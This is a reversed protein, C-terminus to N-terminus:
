YNTRIEVTTGGLNQRMSGFPYKDFDYDDATGRFVAIKTSNEYLAQARAVNNKVAGEDSSDAIFNKFYKDFMLITKESQISGSKKFTPLAQDYDFVYIMIWSYMPSSLITVNSNEAYKNGHIQQSVFTAAEMQFSAVNTTILM